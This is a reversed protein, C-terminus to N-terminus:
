RNNLWKEIKEYFEEANIPKSIYDDMGSELCKEMDGKLAYATMAIIPTRHRDKKLLERIIATASFGDLVPMQVDMLILDFRDKKIENIAEKGNVAEAVAYNRTKLLKTTLQRSISDDEVVLIKKIDSKIIDGVSMAAAAEDQILDLETSMVLMVTFYFTSGKGLESEVWIEGGMLEVLSKSIALGLGTGQYQKTYSDDLQSFRKFLKEINEKAIGIGTDSVSFEIRAKDSQFGKFRARICIQGKKTFKVANCIINSLVQRLRGADGILTDPIISEVDMGMSVGTYSAEVKFFTYIESLLKRIELPKKTLELRGAEIKTYDLIGNIIELLANTSIKVLKLYERQEETLETMLTLDTMGIIGNMPTRIEHSMNALFKSKAINAAEAQEKAKKLESEYVSQELINTILESVMKLMIKDEESWAKDKNAVGFTLFGISLGRFFVPVVVASGIKGSFLIEKEEDTLRNNEDFRSFSIVENSVFNSIFGKIDAKSNLYYNTNINDDASWSHRSKIERSELIVLGKDVEMFSCILNLVFKLNENIDKRGFSIFRASIESIVKELEVRYRLNQRSLELQNERQKICEVMNNFQQVLENFEQYSDYDMITNYEGASVSSVKSRLKSLPMQIRKVLYSSFMMLLILLAIMVGTLMNRIDYIPKLVDDMRQYVVVTWGTLGIKSISTQYKERGLSLNITEARQAEIIRRLNKEMESQNVKEIDTHAIFKGNRDLIGIYSNSGVNMNSVTESLSKLNLNGVVMGNDIPVAMTVTPFGTHPSIFIDSWIPKDTSRALKYYITNERSLGLIDYNKPAVHVVTGHKDICEISEFYSYDSVLDDMYRYMKSDDEIIGRHRLDNVGTLLKYPEQVFTELQGALTDALLNNRYFIDNALHKSLIYYTAFSIILLPLISVIIFSKQLYKSISNNKM